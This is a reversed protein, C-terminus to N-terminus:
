HFPGKWLRGELELDCWAGINSCCGLNRTPCSQLAEVNFQSSCFRWLYTQKETSAWCRIHLLNLFENRREEPNTCRWENNVKRTEPGTNVQMQM